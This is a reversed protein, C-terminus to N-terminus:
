RPVEATMEADMERTGVNDHSFNRQMAPPLAKVAASPPLRLLPDGYVGYLLSLPWHQGRLSAMIEYIPQGGYLFEHLFAAGFRLAFVDPVKAETGIFGCFGARVTTAELFSGGASGLATGCGNLFFLSPQRHGRTRPSMRALDDTNIQDTVGLALSNGNAHCYFYILGIEAAGTMWRRRLETTSFVAQAPGGLLDAITAKEDASVADLAAEFSDKNLVPLVQFRDRDPLEPRPRVRHHVTTLLHKVSWFDAYDDITTGEGLADPSADYILGWPVHIRHDVKVLVRFGGQKNALDERVIDAAEATESEALFLGDFLDHGAAALARLTPGVEALQGRRALDVLPALRGRVKSGLRQLRDADIFYQQYDMGNENWTVKLRGEHFRLDVTVLPLKSM